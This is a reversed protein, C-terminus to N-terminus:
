GNRNVKGSNGFVSKSIANSILDGQEDIAVYTGGIIGVESFEQIKGTLFSLAGANLLDDSDLFLLWDGQCLDIGANRAASRGKNEQYFYRIRSDESSLYNIKQRSNDTSGDDIILIEYNDFEQNQISKVAEELYFVRNYTPIIASIKSHM